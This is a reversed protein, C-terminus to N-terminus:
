YGVITKSSISDVKNHHSMVINYQIPFHFHNDLVFEEKNKLVKLVAHLYPTNEPLEKYRLIEVSTSIDRSIKSFIYMKLIAYDECDGKGKWATEIPSAWYDVIKYLEEDTVYQIRKNVEDNVYYLQQVGDKTKANRIIEDVWPPMPTVSTMWYLFFLLSALMFGRNTSNTGSIQKLIGSILSISLLSANKVVAHDDDITDEPKSKIKNRFKESPQIKYFTMGKQM